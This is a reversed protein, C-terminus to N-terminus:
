EKEEKEDGPGCCGSDTDSGKGSCCTKGTIIGVAIGVGALIVLVPFLPFKLGFFGFGGALVLIVGLFASCRCIGVGYLHRAINGVVLILGLGLVWTSKPLSGEPQLWLVGIMVLFAAFALGNIKDLLAKKKPDEVKEGM